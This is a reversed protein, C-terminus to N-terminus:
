SKNRKEGKPKTDLAGAFGKKHAILLLLILFVPLVVRLVDTKLTSGM